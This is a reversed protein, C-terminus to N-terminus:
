TNRTPRVTIDPQEPEIQEIPPNTKFSSSACGTTVIVLGSFVLAYVLITAAAKAAAVWNGDRLSNYLIRAPPVLKTIWTWNNTTM